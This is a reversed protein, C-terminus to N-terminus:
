VYAQQRRWSGPTMEYTRKFARNFSAESDYGVQHAVQGISLKHERHLLNAAMQMRWQTLYQLPPVGVLTQFRAAFGSRSLGVARGLSEVTWSEQPSQHILSLATGVSQDRLAGLWGGEGSPQLEQWARIIQVFLVDVLREIAIDFGQKRRCAEYALFRITTELWPTAEQSERSIHM